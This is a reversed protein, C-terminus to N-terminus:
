GTMGMLTRETTQFTPSVRRFTQGYKDDRGKWKRRVPRAQRPYNRDKKEPSRQRQRCSKTALQTRRRSGPTAKEIHTKTRDYWAAFSFDRPTQHQAEAAQRGAERIFGHVLILSIIEQKVLNPCKSRILLPEGGRKPASITNKMEDIATEVQWREHYLDVFAETPLDRLPTLVRYLENGLTFEVLRLVLRINKSDLRRELAVLTDGPGLMKLVTVNWDNPIRVAFAIHREMLKALLLVSPIGRDIVLLDSVTLSDVIDLAIRHEDTNGPYIHFRRVRRDYTTTLLNLLLQPYQSEGQQNGGRGFATANPMTDPVNIKTGDLAVVCRGFRPDITKVYQGALLEHLLALPEYGLRKRAAHFTNPKILEEELPEDTGTYSCLCLMFASELCFGRNLASFLLSWIVLLPSLKSNRLNWRGTVTLARVAMMGLNHGPLFTDGFEQCKAFDNLAPLITSGSAFVRRM